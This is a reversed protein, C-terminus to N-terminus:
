NEATTRSATPDQGTSLMLEGPMGIKLAGDPNPVDVEVAYVFDVREERTQIPTPTFEADDAIHTVRGSVNARSDKGTDYAVTVEQGLRVESLQAGSVYARLTLTDLSAIDYLAQGPQVYEGPEVYATLVRGAVPNHVHSDTIQQRVQAIQANISEIESRASAVAARRADIQRELRNVEGRRLNVQRPTAANQELLRQDRELEERATELQAATVDIQRDAEQVRARATQRRARLEERTLHRTTTDVLGVVGGSSLVVGEDPRFHVLRGSVEASVTIETAEFNGYADASEDSCGTLVGILLAAALLRGPLFHARLPNWFPALWSRHHM